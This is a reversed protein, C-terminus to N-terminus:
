SHHRKKKNSKKTNASCQGLDQALRGLKKKRQQNKKSSHVQTRRDSVGHQNELLPM